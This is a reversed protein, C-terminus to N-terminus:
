IFTEYQMEKKSWDVVEEFKMRILQSSFFAETLMLKDKYFEFEKAGYTKKLEWAGKNVGDIFVKYTKGINEKKVAEFYNM